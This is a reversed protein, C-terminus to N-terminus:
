PFQSLKLYNTNKELISLLNETEGFLVIRKTM